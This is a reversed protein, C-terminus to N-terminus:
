INLTYVALDIKKGMKSINWKIKGDDITLNIHWYQKDGKTTTHLYEINESVVNFPIFFAENRDMCGLVFYSEEHQKMFEIWKTHLAYWYPQYDREYRKSIVCCIGVKEDESM